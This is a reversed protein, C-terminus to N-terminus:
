PNPLRGVRYFDLGNTANPDDFVVPDSAATNTILPTWTMLDRSRQVVYNLGINASYSFQFDAGSARSGNMLSVAVPTVVSIDVSNTASRGNNDRAIVSLTYSGAALDNATASFPGSNESALVTAGALFQVNTVAASGNTVGAEISVTAPAAFVSGNAPNIIALTPPLTSSAVIVQGTMGVFYHETCYYSFVGASTFTNTFFHPTSTIITSDWLGSPVGNDDGHVGNTGSTTSHFIGKWDWIVSDNVSISVTSPSFVNGGPGVAVTTTAASSKQMPAVCFLLATIIATATKLLTNVAVVLLCGGNQEQFNRFVFGHFRSM